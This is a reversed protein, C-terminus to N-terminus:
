DGEKEKPKDFEKTLFEEILKDVANLTYPTDDSLLVALLDRRDAYKKASLIQQKSFTAAPEKKAM